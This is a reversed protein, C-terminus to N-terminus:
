IQCTLLDVVALGVGLTFFAVRFPRPRPWMITKPIFGREKIKAFADVIALTVGPTLIGWGFRTHHWYRSMHKFKLGKLMEPHILHPYTSAFHTHAAM